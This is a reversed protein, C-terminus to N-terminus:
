RVISGLINSEMKSGAECFQIIAEAETFEHVFSFLCSVQPGIKHTCIQTRTLDVRMLYRLESGGYSRLICLPMWYYLYFLVSWVNLCNVNRLELADDMWIMWNILDLIVISLFTWFVFHTFKWFVISHVDARFIWVFQFYIVSISLLGYLIETSKGSWWCNISNKESDISDNFQKSRMCKYSCRVNFLTPYILIQSRINHRLHISIPVVIKTWQVDYRRSLLHAEDDFHISRNWDSRFHLVVPNQM